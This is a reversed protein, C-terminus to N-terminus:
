RRCIFNRRLFRKWRRPIDENRLFVVVDVYSTFRPEGYLMSAISGGVIYRVGLKNLPRLFLLSLEAEPM